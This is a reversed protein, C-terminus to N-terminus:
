PQKRVPWQSTLPLGSRESDDLLDPIVAMGLLVGQTSARMCIHGLLGPSTAPSDSGEVERHAKGRDAQLFSLQAEM